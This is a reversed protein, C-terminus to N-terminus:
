LAYNDLELIRKNLKSYDKGIDNFFERSLIVQNCSLLQLTRLIDKSDIKLPKSIPGIGGIGWSIEDKVHEFLKQFVPNFLIDFMSDFRGSIHLDNLGVHFTTIYDLEIIQRLNFLASFTEVLPIIKMNSAQHILNLDETSKFMPVMINMVGIQNLLDLQQIINESLFDIRVILRAPDYLDIYRRVDDVTHSSIFGSTNIQRKAKGTVELDIIYNLTVNKYTEGILNMDNTFILKNLINKSPRAM